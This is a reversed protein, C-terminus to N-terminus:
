GAALFEILRQAEAKSLRHATFLDDIAFDPFGRRTLWAPLLDRIVQHADAPLSLIIEFIAQHVPDRWSYGALLTRASERM